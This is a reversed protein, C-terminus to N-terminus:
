DHRLADLILAAKAASPHTKRSKSKPWLNNVALKINMAKM